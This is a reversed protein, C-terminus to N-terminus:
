NWSGMTDTSDLRYTAYKLDDIDDGSSMSINVIDFNEQALLTDRLAFVYSYDEHYSDRGTGIRISLHETHGDLLYDNDVEFFDMVKEILSKWTDQVNTVQVLSVTLDQNGADYNSSTLIWIPKRDHLWNIIEM